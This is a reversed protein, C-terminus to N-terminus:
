RQEIKLRDIALDFDQDKNTFEIGFEVGQLYLADNRKVLPLATKIFDLLDLEVAGSRVASPDDIIFTVVDWARAPNKESVYVNFSNNAAVNNIRVKQLSETRYSGAPWTKNKWLWVMVEVGGSPDDPFQSDTLWLDYAINGGIQRFELLYDVFASLKKMRAIPAPFSVSQDGALAKSWPSRGYIVSPYGGFEGVINALKGEIILKGKGNYNILVSGETTQVSWLNTRLYWLKRSPDGADVVYSDPSNTASDGTLEIPAGRDFASDDLKVAMTAPAMSWCGSVMGVLLFFLIIKKQM